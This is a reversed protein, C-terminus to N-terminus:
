SQNSDGLKQFSKSSGSLHYIIENSMGFRFQIVILALCTTRM